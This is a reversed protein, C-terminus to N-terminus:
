KRRKLVTSQLCTFLHEIYIKSIVPTSGRVEPIPLLQQVLQAMVVEWNSPKKTNPLIKFKTQYIKRNPHNKMTTFPVPKSCFMM